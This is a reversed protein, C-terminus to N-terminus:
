GPITGAADGRQEGDDGSHVREAVAALLDAEPVKRMASRFAETTMMPPRGLILWDASIGLGRCFAAIFETSPMDGNWYRRVNEPHVGTLSAIESFTLRGAAATM